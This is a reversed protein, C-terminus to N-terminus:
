VATGKLVLVLCLAKKSSATQYTFWPKKVLFKRPSSSNSLWLTIWIRELNGTYNEIGLRTRSVRPMEGLLAWGQGKGDQTKGVTRPAQRYPHPFPRFPQGLPIYRESFSNTGNPISFCEKLEQSLYSTSVKSCVGPVLFHASFKVKTPPPSASPNGLLLLPTM